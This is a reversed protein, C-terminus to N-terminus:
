EQERCAAARWQQLRSFLAKKQDTQSLDRAVWMGDSRIDEQSAGLSLLYHLVALENDKAALDILTTSRTRDLRVSQNLTVAESELMIRVFDVEGSRVVDRALFEGGAGAYVVDEFTHMDKSAILNRVFSGVDAVGEMVGNAELRKKALEWRNYGVEVVDDSSLCYIDDTCTLATGGRVTLTLGEADIGFEHAADALLDDLLSNERVNLVVDLGEFTYTLEM